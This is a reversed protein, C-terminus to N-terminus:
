VFQYNHLYKADLQRTAMLVDQTKITRFHSPEDTLLRFTLGKKKARALRKHFEYTDVLRGIWIDETMTYTNAGDVFRPQAIVHEHLLKADPSVLVSTGDVHQCFVVPAFKDFYAINIQGGNGDEHVWAFKRGDLYLTFQYGGGEDTEWSKFGKITFNEDTIGGTALM